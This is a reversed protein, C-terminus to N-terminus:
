LSTVNDIVVVVYRLVVDGDGDADENKPNPTTSTTVILKDEDCCVPSKSYNQITDGFTDSKKSPFELVKAKYQYVLSALQKAFWKAKNPGM